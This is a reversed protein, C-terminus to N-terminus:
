VTCYTSIYRPQVLLDLYGKRKLGLLFSSPPVRRAWSSAEGGTVIVSKTSLSSRSPPEQRPWFQFQRGPNPFHSPFSKGKSRISILTAVLVQVEKRRPNEMKMKRKPGEAGAGDGSFNCVKGNETFHSSRLAFQSGMKARVWPRVWENM